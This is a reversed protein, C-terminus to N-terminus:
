KVKTGLTNREDIVSPSRLGIAGARDPLNNESCGSRALLPM